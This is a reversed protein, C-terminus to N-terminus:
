SQNANVGGTNTDLTIIGRNPKIISIRPYLDTHRRGPGVLQATRQRAVHMTLKRLSSATSESGTHCGTVGVQRLVQIPDDARARRIAADPFPGTGMAAVSM